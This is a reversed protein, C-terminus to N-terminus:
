GLRSELEKIRAELIELEKRSVNNDSNKFSNIEDRIMQKIQIKEEEGKKMAKDVAQRAEERSMEGKEDLERVMEEAKERTLSVAGFGLNIVKEFLNM